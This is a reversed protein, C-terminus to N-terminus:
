VLRGASIKELNCHLSANLQPDASKGEDKCVEIGAAGVAAGDLLMYDLKDVKDRRAALAIAIRRELLLREDKQVKEIKWVSAKNKDTRFDCVPDAPVDGEPLWDFQTETWRKQTTVRLLLHV